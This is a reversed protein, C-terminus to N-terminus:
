PSLQAIPGVSQLEPALMWRSRVNEIKVALLYAQANLHIARGVVEALSLFGICPSVVPEGLFTYSGKPNWRAVHQFIKFTDHLENEKLTAGCGEVM